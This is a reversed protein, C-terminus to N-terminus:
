VQDVAEFPLWHIPIWRICCPNPPLPVLALSVQVACCGSWPHAELWCHIARALRLQKAWGFATMGWGDIGCRRRAKVEVVLVRRTAGVGKVLLLDIEGYRCWWREEVCCWGHSELLTRAQREAWRGPDSLLRNSM